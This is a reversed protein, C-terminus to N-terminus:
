IYGLAELRRRTKEDIGEFEDTNPQVIGLWENLRDLLIRGPEEAAGSLDRREAPDSALDFLEIKEPDESAILKLSESILARQTGGFWDGWELSHGPRYHESIVSRSAAAPAGLLSRGHLDELAALGLGDLVTPLVDVLSAIQTVVGVRDSAPLKIVLPVHIQDQYLSVAHGFLGKDGFVEGHDSLVILLTDDYLGREKLAEVLRELQADLYAIAGDYQSLMHQRDPESIPKRDILIAAAISHFKMSVFREDKGPVLEDYPAPPLYPDHADMYNAFLFFPRGSAQARDLVSFVEANIEEANRYLKDFATRPVLPTHTVLRIVVDRIFRRFFYKQTKALLIIPERADFYDFGQDMGFDRTLYATNAIVAYTAYQNQSLAEALTTFGEGLPKGDPFEPDHYHAGHRRAYLGTFLSAHSTLTMNGPAYANRFVLAERALMELKPTTEYEYGYLSLHDARVTDWSVIVLNPTRPSRPDAALLNEDIPEAQDLLTNLAIVALVVAGGTLARTRLRSWSLPGSSDNSRWRVALAACALFVSCFAVTWLCKALVPPLGAFSAPLAPAVLLLVSVSVANAVLRVRAFRADGALGLALAVGVVVLAILAPYHLLPDYYWHALLNLVYFAPLSAVCLVQIARRLDRPSGSGSFGPLLLRLTAAVGLGLLIGVLPYVVFLLATYAVSLEHYEAAGNALRPWVILCLAEVIGYCTWAAAGCWAAYGTASISGTEPAPEAAGRGGRAVGTM